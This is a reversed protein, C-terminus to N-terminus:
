PEMETQSRTSNQLTAKIHLQWTSMKSHVRNICGMEQRALAVATRRYYVSQRVGMYDDKGNIKLESKEDSGKNDGGM